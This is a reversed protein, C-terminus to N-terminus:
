APRVAVSDVTSGIAAGAITRACALALEACATRHQHAV